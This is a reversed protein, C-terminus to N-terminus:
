KFFKDLIQFSVSFSSLHSLSSQGKIKLNQSEFHFNFFFNSLINFIVIILNEKNKQIFLFSEGIKQKNRM